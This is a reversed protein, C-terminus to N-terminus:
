WFSPRQPIFTLPSPAREIDDAMQKVGIARIPHRAHPRDKLKAISPRKFGKITPPLFPLTLALRQLLQQILKAPQPCFVQVLQACQIQPLLVKLPTSSMRSKSYHSQGLKKGGPGRMVQSMKM